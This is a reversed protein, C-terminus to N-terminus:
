IVLAAEKTQMSLRAAARTATYAQAYILKTKLHLWSCSSPTYKYSCMSSVNPSPSSDFLRLEVRWCALSYARIKTKSWIVMYVASTNTHHHNLHTAGRTHRGVTDRLSIYVRTRTQVNRQLVFSRTCFLQCVPRRLHPRKLNALMNKEEDEEEAPLTQGVRQCSPVQNCFAM